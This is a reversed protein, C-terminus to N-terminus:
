DTNNEYGAELCIWIGCPMCEDLDGRRYKWVARDSIRSIGDEYVPGYGVSHYVDKAM